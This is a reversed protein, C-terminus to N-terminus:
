LALHTAVVEAIAHGPIRHQDADPHIGDDFFPCGWTLSDSYVLISDVASSMRYGADYLRDPIMNGLPKM